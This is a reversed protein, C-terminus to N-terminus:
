DYSDKRIRCNRVMKFHMALPILILIILNTSLDLGVEWKFCPWGWTDLIHPFIWQKKWEPTTPPFLTCLNPRKTLIIVDAKVRNEGQQMKDWMWVRVKGSVSCWLLHEIVVTWIATVKEDQCRLFSNTLPVIPSFIKTKNGMDEFWHM